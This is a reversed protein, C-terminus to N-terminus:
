LPYVVCTNGGSALAVGTNNIISFNTLFTAPIDLFEIKKASSTTDISIQYFNTGNDIQINAGATPTIKQLIIEVKANIAGAANEYTLGSLTSGNALSNLAADAVKQIGFGTTINNAVSGAPISIEISQELPM